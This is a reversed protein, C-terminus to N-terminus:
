IDGGIRSRRKAGSSAARCPNASRLWARSNPIIGFIAIDSGPVPRVRLKRGSELLDGRYEKHLLAASCDVRRWSFPIYKCTAAIAETM